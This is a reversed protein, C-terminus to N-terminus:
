SNLSSRATLDLKDCARQISTSSQFCVCLSVVIVRMRMRASWLCNTTVVNCTHICIIFAHAFIQLLHSYKLCMHYVHAKGVYFSYQVTCSGYLHVKLSGVLLDEYM